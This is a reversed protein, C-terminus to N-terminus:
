VYICIERERERGRIEEKAQEEALTKGKEKLTDV